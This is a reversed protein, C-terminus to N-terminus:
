SLGFAKRLQDRLLGTNTNALIAASRTTEPRPRALDGARVPCVASTDPDALVAELM